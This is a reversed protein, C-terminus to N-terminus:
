KVEFPLVIVLDNGIYFKQEYKGAPYQMPECGITNGSKLEQPFYGVTKTYEKTETNYVAIGLQNAPVIKKIDLYMCFQDTSSFLKTKQVNIPNFEENSGLKGLSAYSFYENFVDMNPQESINKEIEMIASPSPTYNNPYSNNNDKKLLLFALVAVVVVLIIVFVILFKKVQGTLYSEPKEAV